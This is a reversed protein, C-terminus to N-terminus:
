RLVDMDLMHQPFMLFGGVQSNQKSFAGGQNMQCNTGEPVSGVASFQVCKLNLCFFKLQSTTQKNPKSLTEQLVPQGKAQWYVRIVKFKYGKGGEKRLYTLTSPNSAHVVM